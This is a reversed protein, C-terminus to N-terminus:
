HLMEGKKRSESFREKPVQCAGPQQHPAKPRDGFRGGVVISRGRVVISRGRVVIPRGSQGSALNCFCVACDVREVISVPMGQHDLSSVPVLRDGGRVLESYSSTAESNEGPAPPRRSKSDQSGTNPSAIRVTYRGAKPRGSLCKANRDATPVLQRTCRERASTGGAVSDM